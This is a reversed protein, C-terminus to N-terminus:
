ATTNEHQQISKHEKSKDCLLLIIKLTEDIVRFNNKVDRVQVATNDLLKFITCHEIYNTESLKTTINPKAIVLFLIIKATSDTLM